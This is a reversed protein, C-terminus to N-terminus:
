RKFGLAERQATWEKWHVKHKSWMPQFGWEQTPKGRMFLTWTSEAGMELWHFQTAQARRISGPGYWKKTDAIIFGEWDFIPTHEWYGGALIITTYPWPHDHYVPEDSGRINHLFANFRHTKNEEQGLHWLYYRWMYDDSSIVKKRGCRELFDGLKECLKRM